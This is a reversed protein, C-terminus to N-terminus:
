LKPKAPALTASFFVLRYCGARSLCAGGLKGAATANEANDNTQRLRQWQSLAGNHERRDGCGQNVLKDLASLCNEKAGRFRM